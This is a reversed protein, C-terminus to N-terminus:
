RQYKTGRGNGTKAIYGHSVLKNLISITKSKKWGTEKIIESSSMSKLELLNYILLENGELKNGNVIPLSIKIM